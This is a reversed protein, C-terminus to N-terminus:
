LFEQQLRKNTYDVYNKNLDIGIYRRKLSKAVFLTTGSGMFSDLVVEGVFSFLKILRRPIEEPFPCPHDKNKEGNIHWVSEAAWKFENFTMKSDEKIKDPINSIRSRGEKRFILIYEFLNIFPINPPYPYSGLMYNAGGSAHSGRNKKWIILDKYIWGHKEALLILRAHTGRNKNIGETKLNTHKDDIIICLRGDESSVRFSEKLWNDLYNIYEEYSKLNEINDKDNGYDKYAYYPPSTIHLPISNDNLQKLGKISDKWYAKDVELM